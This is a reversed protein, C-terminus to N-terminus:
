LLCVLSDPGDPSPAAQLRLDSPGTWEGRVLRQVAKPLHLVGHVNGATRLAYGFQGGTAPVRLVERCRQPLARLETEAADFVASALRQVPAATGSGMLAGTRSSSGQLALARRFGDSAFADAQSNREAEAYQGIRMMLQMWDFGHGRAAEANGHNLWVEAHALEHILTGEMLPTGVLSAKVTVQHAQTTYYAAVFPSLAPPQFHSDPCIRISPMREATARLQLQAALSEAQRTVAPDQWCEAWATQTAYALSALLALTARM